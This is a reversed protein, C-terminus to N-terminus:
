TDGYIREAGKNWSIITGQLDTGIIADQSSDVIAARRQRYDWLQRNTRQALEEHARRLEQEIRKRDSVDRIASLVLMGEATEVPSLSIEVPFESGDRRRGFLDLGAGMRRIKPGSYYSERHQHHQQRQREPVLMDVSQGILEDRRYGFLAETQSNVEIIVGQQNVAALADPIAELISPSLLTEALIKQNSEM